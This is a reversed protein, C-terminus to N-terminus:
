SAPAPTCSGSSHATTIHCCSNERSPNVNCFSGKDGHAEKIYELAFTWYKRRLEYRSGVEDEEDENEDRLYFVLDTPDADYLKFVRNEITYTTQM